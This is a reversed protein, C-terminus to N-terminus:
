RDREGLGLGPGGGSLQGDSLHMVRDARESVSPDHSVVVVTMGHRDRLAVILDLTRQGSVSDLAGTPEDALLLRPRNALARALAVASRQGRSLESPLDEARDALGVNELLERARARRERRAAGTALLPAEVNDGASLYPLLLHDQFVFGVMKRRFQVAHRPEPVPRGGVAITGADPRDLSGILNLLTSKGSGSAGTIAVFESPAVALSVGRLAEIRGYSKFVHRVVVDAGHSVEPASRDRRSASRALRALDSRTV